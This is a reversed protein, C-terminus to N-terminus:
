GNLKISLFRSKTEVSQGSFAFLASVAIEMDAVLMGHETEVAYRKESSILDGCFRLSSGKTEYFGTKTHIIGQALGNNIVFVTYVVGFRDQKHPSVLVVAKQPIDNWVQRLFSLAEAFERIPQSVQPSVRIEVPFSVGDHVGSACVVRKRAELVVPRLLEIISYPLTGAETEEPVVALGDSLKIYRSVFSFGGPLGAAACYLM